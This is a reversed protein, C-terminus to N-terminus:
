KEYTGKRIVEGHKMFIKERAVYTDLTLDQDFLLLDADAGEAM